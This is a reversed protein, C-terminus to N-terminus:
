TIKYTELTTAEVEVKKLTNMRSKQQKNIKDDQAGDNLPFGLFSLYAHFQVNSEKNSM